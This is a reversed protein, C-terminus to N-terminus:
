AAMSNHANYIKLFKLFIKDGCFIIITIGNRTNAKVYGNITVSLYWKGIIGITHINAPTSNALIANSREFSVGAVASCALFGLIEQSVISM